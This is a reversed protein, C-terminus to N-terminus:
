DEAVVLYVALSTVALLAAAGAALLWGGQMARLDPMELSLFERSSAVSAALWPLLAVGSFVV